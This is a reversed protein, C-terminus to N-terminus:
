TLYGLGMVRRIQEHLPMSILFVPIFRVFQPMFGRMFGRPGETELIHRACHATSEFREGVNAAAVWRVM